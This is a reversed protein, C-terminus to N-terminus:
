TIEDSNNWTLGADTKVDTAGHELFSVPFCKERYNSSLAWPVPLVSQPISQLISYCQAQQQLNSNSKSSINFTSIVTIFFFEILTLETSVIYKSCQCKATDRPRLCSITRHKDLFQLKPCTSNQKPSQLKIKCWQKEVWLWKVMLLVPHLLNHIFLMLYIPVRSQSYLVFGLSFCFQGSLQLFSSQCHNDTLAKLQFAVPCFPFPCQLGSSLIWELDPKNQVQWKVYLLGSNNIKERRILMNHPEDPSWLRTCM